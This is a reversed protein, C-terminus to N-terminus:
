KKEIEIFRVRYKRKDGTEDLTVILRGVIEADFDDLLWLENTDFVEPLLSPDPYYAPRDPTCNFQYVFFEVFLGLSECYQSYGDFINDFHQFSKICTKVDGGVCIRPISADENEKVSGPVRPEFSPIKGNTSIHFVKNLHSPIIKGNSIAQHKEMM